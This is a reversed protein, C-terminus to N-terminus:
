VYLTAEPLGDESRDFHHVLEDFGHAGALYMSHGSVTQAHESLEDPWEIRLNRMEYDCMRDESPRTKDM